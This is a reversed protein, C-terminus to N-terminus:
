PHWESYDVVERPKDTMAFMRDFFEHCACGCTQWMKCSPAPNGRFTVPKKGECWGQACFGTKYKSVHIKENGCRGDRFRQNCPVKELKDNKIWRKCVRPVAPKAPATATQSM